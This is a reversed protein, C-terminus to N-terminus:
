EFAISVNKYKLCSFGFDILRIQLGSDTMNYMINDPKLDKHIFGLSHLEKLGSVVQFFIARILEDRQNWPLAM